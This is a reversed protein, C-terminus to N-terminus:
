INYSEAKLYSSVFDDIADESDENNRMFRERRRRFKDAHNPRYVFFYIVLILAIILVAVILIWLLIKKTRPDM